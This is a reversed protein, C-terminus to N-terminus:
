TLDCSNGNAFYNWMFNKRGNLHSESCMLSSTPDNLRVFNPSLFLGNESEQGTASHDGCRRESGLPAWLGQLAVHSCNRLENRVRRFMKYMVGYFYLANEPWISFPKYMYEGDMSFRDGAAFVNAKKGWFTNSLPRKLGGFTFLATVDIHNTLPKPECVFTM